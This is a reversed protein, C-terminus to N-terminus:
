RKRKGGDWTERFNRSAKTLAKAKKERAEAECRMELGLRLQNAKAMKRGTKTIILGWSAPVFHSDCDPLRGRLIRWGGRPPVIFTHGPRFLIEFEVGERSLPADIEGDDRWRHPPLHFPVLLCKALRGMAM